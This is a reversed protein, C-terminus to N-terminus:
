EVVELRLDLLPTDLIARGVDVTQAGAEFAPKLDDLRVGGGFALIVQGRLQLRSLERHILVLDDLRGTDVMIVGAGAHVAFEAEEINKVQIAVPGHNLARGAAIAAAVSGLLRVANKNVYIFDGEVLRPLVGVAALGARLVPKLASPLKKWGGCAIRLGSPCADVFTKARTAIGSAFGLPGVVYDEAVGIEAATGIVEILVDGAAVAAGERVKINWQGVPAPALSPDLLGLGAVIGAETTKVVARHVGRVGSLLGAALNPAAQLPATM